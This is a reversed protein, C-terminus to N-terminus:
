PAYPYHDSMRVADTPWVYRSHELPRHTADYTTLHSVLVTTGSTIGFCGAEFPNAGRARTHQQVGAVTRGTVLQVAQPWATEPTLDRLATAAEPGLGPLWSVHIQV